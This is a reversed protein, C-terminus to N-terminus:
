GCKRETRLREMTRLRNQHARLVLGHGEDLEKEPILTVDVCSDVIEKKAKAKREEGLCEQYLFGRPAKKLGVEIPKTRPERFRSDRNVPSAGRSLRVDVM